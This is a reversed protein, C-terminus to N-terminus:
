GNLYIKKIDYEKKNKIENNIYRLIKANSWKTFEIIESM